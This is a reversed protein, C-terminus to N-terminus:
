AATASTRAQGGIRILSSATARSVSVSVRRATQLAFYAVSPHQAFPEHRSRAHIYAESRSRGKKLNEGPWPLNNLVAHSAEGAPNLGTDVCLQTLLLGHGLGVLGAESCLTKLLLSQSLVRSRGEM